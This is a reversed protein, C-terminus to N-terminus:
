SGGPICIVGLRSFYAIGSWVVAADQGVLRASGDNFSCDKSQSNVEALIIKNSESKAIQNYYDVLAVKMNVPYSGPTYDTIYIVHPTTNMGVLETALNSGYDGATNNVYVNQLLGIPEAM